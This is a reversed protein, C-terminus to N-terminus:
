SEDGERTTIATRSGDPAREFAFRLASRGKYEGTGEPTFGAGAFARLSAVNEPLIWATVRRLGPTGCFALRCSERILLAGLGKGRQPSSLAVSIVAADEGARDFRVYGAPGDADETEAVYFPGREGALRDAFWAEHDSPAIPDPSFSWRRVGADNAIDLIARSDSPRAPRLRFTKRMLQDIVRAAGDGDVLRRGAESAGARAAANVIMRRLTEHNLEDAVGLTALGTAIGVQNEAVVTTLFPVGLCCLEWCTSGGASVALDTQLLLGPMDNVGSLIELRAPTDALAARIRDHAMSGAIVRLEVGRLEEQAFFPAIRTLHGSFDGGGLTLLLNELHPALNRKRAADRALRFEARLLAHRPGLLRCGIEGQYSLSEAGINQNLLIDAHYESLHAYDDVVLLHYGEARVARHCEPTFHYGDLICWAASGDPDCTAIQALLAGPKEREPADGELEYFAVGERALRQRLWPVTTRTAILVDLGRERAARALAMCRMVHGTGMRPAADARIVIHRRPPM